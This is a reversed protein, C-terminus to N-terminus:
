KTTKEIEAELVAWIHAKWQEFAPMLYPKWKQVVKNAYIWKGNKKWALRPKNKPLITGWFERIRAYPLNSWVKWLTPNTTDSLISRRLTWTAYPSLTIATSRIEHTIKIITNREARKIDPLQGKSIIKVESTM